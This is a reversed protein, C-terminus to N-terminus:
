QFAIENLGFYEIENADMDFMMEFDEANYELAEVINDKFNTALEELRARPIYNEDVKRYLCEAANKLCYAKDEADNADASYYLGQGWSQTEPNYGCAVVYDTIFTGEMVVLAYRGVQLLVQKERM